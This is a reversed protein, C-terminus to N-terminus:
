KTVWWTIQRLLAPSDFKRRDSPCQWRGLEISRSQVLCVGTPLKPPRSYSSGDIPMTSVLLLGGVPHRTWLCYRVAVVAGDSVGKLVVNEMSIGLSRTLHSLTSYIDDFKEEETAHEFSYGYGSSGRHNVYALDFGQELIIQTSEDFAPRFQAHPGGGHLEVCLWRVQLATPM